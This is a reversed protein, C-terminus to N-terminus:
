HPGKGGDLSIGGDDNEEPSPVTPTESSPPVISDNPQLAQVANIHPGKGGDEQPGTRSGNSVQPTSIQDPQSM